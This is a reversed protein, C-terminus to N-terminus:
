RKRSPKAPEVNDLLERLKKLEDASLPRAEVLSSVLPIPNDAFYNRLFDRVLRRRVTHMSDTVFFTFAKTQESKKHQVLGKDELRQLVTIITSHALRRNKPLRDRLQQVTAPGTRFLTQLIEM